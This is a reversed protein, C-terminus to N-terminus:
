CVSTSRQLPTYPSADEIILEPCLNNQGETYMIGNLHFAMFTESPVHRNGTSDFLIEGYIKRAYLDKAELESKRSLEIVWLYKPMRMCRYKAIINPHRKHEGELLDAKFKSSPRLYTRFVLDELDEDKWLDAKGIDFEPQLSEIIRDRIQEILLKAHGIADNWNLNVRPPLHSICFDIVNGDLTLFTPAEGGDDEVKGKGKKSDIGVEMEQYPGTSDDHVIFSGVAESMTKLPKKKYDHGIVLLVHGPVLADGPIGAIVPLESEICTYIFEKAETANKSYLIYPNLGLQRLADLMQMDMLGERAPGITLNKTAVDTIEAPRHRRTVGKKNFYRAIMWLDAEACVGVSTEQQFFPMGTIKLWNGLLSVKNEALCHVLDKGMDNLACPSALFTDGVRFNQLPRIVFYGLYSKILKESMVFFDQIKIESYPTKFFHIRTTDRPVSYFTRSYLHGYEENWDTSTYPEIIAVEAHLKNQALDLIHLFPLQGVFPQKVLDFPPDLSEFLKERWGQSTIDFIQIKADDSAYESFNDEKLM